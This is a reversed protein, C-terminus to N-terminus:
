HVVKLRQRVFTNALLTSNLQSLAATHTCGGVSSNQPIYRVFNTNCMYLSGYPLNSLQYAHFSLRSLVLLNFLCRLFVFVFKCMVFGCM